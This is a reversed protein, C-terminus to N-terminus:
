VVLIIININNYQTYQKSNLVQTNLIMIRFAKLIMIRHNCVYKNQIM